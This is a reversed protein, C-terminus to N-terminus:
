RVNGWVVVARLLEKSWFLEGEVVVVQNQQWYAESWEHVPSVERVLALTSSDSSAIHSKGNM